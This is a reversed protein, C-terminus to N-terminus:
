LEQVQPSLGLERIAEEMKEYYQKSQYNIPDTWGRATIIGAEMMNTGFSRGDLMPTTTVLLRVGANKFIERDKATTTNTVIIKGDLREPMYKTIYHCDGSIVTAWDFYKTFKPTHVEQKEGTPYLWNFPLNTILPILIKAMRKLGADDSISIPLGLGFILDGFISKYGLDMFGRSLGYRDVGSMQFVKKPMGDLHPEIVTAAKRELTNKLGTGDVVPTIKVDRVLPQISRLNYWKQDVLFGIIAGGVGLAGVKGDLDRYLQAAAEMDGDTGIRELQITKGFLDVEVTKDRKSSGISVSVARHHM